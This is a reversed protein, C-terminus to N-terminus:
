IRRQRATEAGDITKTVLHYPGGETPAGENYFYNTHERALTEENTKGEKGAVLKVTHQPGLSSLLETGPESGKEEYTNGHVATRSKASKM